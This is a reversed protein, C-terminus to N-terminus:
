KYSDGKHGAGNVSTPTVILDMDDSVELKSTFIVVPVGATTIGDLFKLKKASTCNSLADAHSTRCLCFACQRLM